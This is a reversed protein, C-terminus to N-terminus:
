LFFWAPFSLRRFFVGILIVSPFSVSSSLRRSFIGPIVLRCAPFFVPLRAPQSAPAREPDMKISIRNHRVGAPGWLCRWVGGDSFVLRRFLFVGPFLRRFLFVGSFSAPCHLRQFCVGPFLSMSFLRRSIFIGFLFSTRRKM